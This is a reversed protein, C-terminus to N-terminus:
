KFFRGFSAWFIQLSTRKCVQIYKEASDSLESMATSLLRESYKAIFREGATHQFMNCLVRLMVLQNKAHSQCSLQTCAYELFEDSHAFHETVASQHVVLRLIDLVPFLIATFVFCSLVTTSYMLRGTWYEPCLFFMAYVHLLYTVHYHEPTLWQLSLQVPHALFRVTKSIKTPWFFRVTKSIKCRSIVSLHTIRWFNWFKLSIRLKCTLATLYEKCLKYLDDTGVFNCQIQCHRTLKAWNWEFYLLVLVIQLM